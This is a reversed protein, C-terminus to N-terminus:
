SNEKGIVRIEELRTSSSTQFANTARPQERFREIDPFSRPQNENLAGVKLSTSCDLAM